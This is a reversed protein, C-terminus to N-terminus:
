RRDIRDAFDGHVYSRIPDKRLFEHPFGLDIRSAADLRAVQEESLRLDLCRLNAELQEATRAGVIPIVSCDAAQRVWALAAQGPECELEAAVALLERTIAESRDDVQEDVGSRRTDM